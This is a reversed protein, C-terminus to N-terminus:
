RSRNIALFCISFLIFYGMCAGFVVGLTIEGFDAILRYMVLLETM